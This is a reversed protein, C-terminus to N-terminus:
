SSAEESLRPMVQQANQLVVCSDHQSALRVVEDPGSVYAVGLSEVREEDLRSLLYVRTRQLTKVLTAAAVADATHQKGVIRVADDLSEARAIRRLTPGPKSRLDCCVAITGGEEVVRSAADLARAFSTWSQQQRGGPLTAVVLQARQPVECNWIAECLELSRQEVSTTEGTVIHLLTEGNGPITQVVFQVGLFWYAEQAEEILAKRKASSRAAKPSNFRQQTAEDAFAPFLVGALGLSGLSKTPRTVGFPIVVDAEVIARNLYIPSDHSSVNLMCLQERNAADHAIVEISAQLDEPLLRTPSERTLRADTAHRLVTISEPDVGADLLEMVTGAVLAAPQVLAEGLVLVVEDGPVVCQSLGPFNLPEAWAARMAHALDELPEMRPRGVNAVALEDPLRLASRM